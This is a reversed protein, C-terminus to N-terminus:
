LLEDCYDLNEWPVYQNRGRKKKRSEPHTAKQKRRRCEPCRKPAEFGNFGLRKQEAVTFVFDNDCQICSITQERMVNEGIQIKSM